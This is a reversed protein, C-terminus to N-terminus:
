RPSQPVRCPPALDAKCPPRGYAPFPRLLHPNSVRDRSTVLHPSHPSPCPESLACRRTRGCWDRTAIERRALVRARIEPLPTVCRGDTVRPLYTRAALAWDGRDVVGADLSWDDMVLARWTMVGDRCGSDRNVWCGSGSPWPFRLFGGSGSAPSFSDHIGADLGVTTRRPSQSVQPLQQHMRGAM